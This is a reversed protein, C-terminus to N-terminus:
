ISPSWIGEGEQIRLAWSCFFIEKRKEEREFSEKRKEERKQQKKEPLRSSEDERQDGGRPGRALESSRNGSDAWILSHLNTHIYTHSLSPPLFFAETCWLNHTHSNAYQVLGQTHIHTHTQDTTELGFKIKHIKNKLSWWLLHNWMLSAKVNCRPWKLSNGLWSAAPIRNCDFPLRKCFFGFHDLHKGFSSEAVCHPTWNTYSPSFVENVYEPWSHACQFCDCYLLNSNRWSFM